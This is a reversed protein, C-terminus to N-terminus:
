EEVDRMLREHPNLFIMKMWGRPADDWRFPYPIMTLISYHLHTPANRASGSNGVRGITDGQQLFEGVIAEITDMHAYYHLRWQPGAVFAARGGLDMRGTFLVIGPTAAVVPTGREAFIDIGDHVGKTGWPYYWFTEHNWDATTAGDVPIILNEPTAFGSLIIHLLTYLLFEM